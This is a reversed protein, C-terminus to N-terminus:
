FEEFSSDMSDHRITMAQTTTRAPLRLPNANVRVNMTKRTSIAPAEAPGPRVESVADSIKFFSMAKQLGIAQGSLEEASAALEESAASNQQIVSDLQTIAKTVQDSGVKQERSAAAIEQVLGSTGQIDPVIKKLLEGAQEAIEVSEKSLVSIEGAAKQSREALKRVESAVVAFGKGAEGARAAEIAANLALLNTQRAIEEIISISSAIKKMAKVTDEVASGGKLADDAAKRSLQETAVANDMNQKTSAAMQEMSASVEEASAAQEAAGQSMQQATSSIQQSGLSVSAAGSKVNKVIDRLKGLMRDMSQLLHGIEDRHGKPMSINLDGSALLDAAEAAATLPKLRNGMYLAIILVAAAIGALGAILIGVAMGVASATIDSVSMNALIILSREENRVFTQVKDVGNFHYFIVSGSPSALVKKGFDTTAINLKFIYDKNPHAVTLGTLDTIAPYGTKGIAVKAVLRQAFSGLDLPLGLIGIVKEGDVIPATILVIPLGTSPSRTPESAWAKGALANSINAEFAQSKWKQGVAADLAAAIIRTDQEATSVFANEYLKKEAFIDKVLTTAQDTRGGRAAVKVADSRALFKAENLNDEYFTNVQDNIGKTSNQLEAIYVNKESNYASFYAISSVGATLVVIIVAIIWSLRVRLSTIGKRSEM